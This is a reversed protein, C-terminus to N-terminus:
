SGAKVPSYTWLGTQSAHPHRSVQMFEKGELGLSATFSMIRVLFGHSDRRLSHYILPSHCASFIVVTEETVTCARVKSLYRRAPSILPNSNAGERALMEQSSFDPDQGLEVKASAMRFNLLVTQM